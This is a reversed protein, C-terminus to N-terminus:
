RTCLTSLIIRQGGHQTFLLVDLLIVLFEVLLFLLRCSISVGGGMPCNSPFNNEYKLLIKYYIQILEEYSPTSLFKCLDITKNLYVNDYKGNGEDFMVAVQIFYNSSEKHLFTYMSLLGKQSITMNFEVDDSEVGYTLNVLNM